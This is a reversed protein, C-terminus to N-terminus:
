VEIIYAFSSPHLWPNKFSKKANKAKDYCINWTKLTLVPECEIHVKDLLDGGFKVDRSQIVINIYQDNVFKHVLYLTDLILNAWKRKLNWVNGIIKQVSQRYYIDIVITKTFEQPGGPIQFDITYGRCSLM